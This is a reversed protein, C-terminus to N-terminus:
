KVKKPIAGNHYMILEATRIPTMTYGVKNEISSKIPTFDNDNTIFHCFDLFDLYSSCSDLRAKKKLGKNLYFHVRSDWIPYLQPNVFHLLKSSGVISNNLCSKMIELEDIRLRQGSHAKSLFVVVKDLKDINKFEFMTPMWGYTFNIGIILDTKSISNRNSFYELFTPYSIYDSKNKIEVREEDQRLKNITTTQKYFDIM